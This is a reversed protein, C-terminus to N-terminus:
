FILWIRTKIIIIIIVIDFDKLKIPLISVIKLIM